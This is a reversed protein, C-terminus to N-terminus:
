VILILIDRGAHTEYFSKRSEVNFTWAANRPFAYCHITECLATRFERVADAM